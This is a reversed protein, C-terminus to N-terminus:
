LALQQCLFRPVPFAIEDYYFRISKASKSFLKYVNRHAINNDSEDVTQSRPIHPRGTKAKVSRRKRKMALEEEDESDFIPRENRDSILELPIDQDTDEEADTYSGRRNTTLNRKCGTTTLRETTGIRTTPNKNIRSEITIPDFNTENLSHIAVSMGPLLNAVIDSYNRVSEILMRRYVTSTRTNESYAQLQRIENEDYM